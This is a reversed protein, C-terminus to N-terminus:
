RANAARWTATRRRYAKSIFNGLSMRASKGGLKFHYFFTKAGAYSLRIGFGPFGEDFVDTQGTKPLKMNEIKLATLKAKAM